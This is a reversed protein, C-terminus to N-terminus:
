LEKYRGYGFLFQPVAILFVSLIIANGLVGKENSAVGIMVFMISLVVTTIFLKKESSITKSTKKKEPM